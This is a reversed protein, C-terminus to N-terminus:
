EVVILHEDRKAEPWDAEDILHLVAFGKRGVSIACQHVSRTRRGAKLPEGNAREDNRKGDGELRPDGTGGGADQAGTKETQETGLAEGEGESHREDKERIAAHTQVGPESPSQVAVEEFDALALAVEGDAQLKKGNIRVTGQAILRRAAARSRCLCLRSLLLSLFPRRPQPSAQTRGEDAGRGSAFTAGIAVDADGEGAGNGLSGSDRCEAPSRVPSASGEANGAAARAAGLWSRRLFHTPPLAGSVEVTEATENEGAESESGAYEPPRLPLAPASAFAFSSQQRGATVVARVARTISSGHVLTTVHDALVEKLYNLGREGCHRTDEELADIEPVSLLTFWRLLRRVDGDDVNRWHQWFEVPPTLDKRLWVTKGGPSKPLTSHGRRSEDVRGGEGEDGRRFASDTGTRTGTGGPSGSKGMKVGSRHLLLPTTIGFLRANDRRRALELGTAINGWQDGGGVQGVVGLRRRLFSWDVAQLVSYALSAFSFNAKSAAKQPQAGADGSRTPTNRAPLCPGLTEEVSSRSLLRPLSLYAGFETLFDLSSLGGLWARNEVITAPPPKATAPSAPLPFGGSPDSVDLNFISTLQRAIAARNEDIKATKNADLCFAHRSFDRAALEGRGEEGSRCGAEADVDQLVSDLLSPQSRLTRSSRASLSSSFVTRPKVFNHQFKGTPDGVLTTATGLLIVPRVLQLCQLRRLLLLPLLHGIHLSRGTLDIGLYFSLPQDCSADEGDRGATADQSNHEEGAACSRKAAKLSAQDCADSVSPLRARLCASAHTEGTGPNGPTRPAHARAPEESQRKDTERAVVAGTWAVLLRDLRALANGHAIVGRAFADVLFPSAFAHEDWPRNEGSDEGVEEGPELSLPFAPASLALRAPFRPSSASSPSLPFSPSSLRSPFVAPSFGPRSARTKPRRRNPLKSRSVSVSLPLCLSLRCVRADMEALIAAHM